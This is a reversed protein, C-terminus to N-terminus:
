VRSGPQVIQVGELPLVDNLGTRSLYESGTRIEPLRPQRSEGDHVDGNVPKVSASCKLSERFHMDSGSGLGHVKM